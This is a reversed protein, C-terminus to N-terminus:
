EQPTVTRLARRMKRRDGEALLALLGLSALGVALLPGGASTGAAAAPVIPRAASAPAAAPPSPSAAAPQASLPPAAELGPTGPIFQTSGALNTSNLGFLNYANAPIASSTANVGGFGASFFGGGDISAIAIHGVTIPVASYCTIAAVQKPESPGFGNELGGILTQQAGQTPNNVAAILSDRTQNPVVLIQLASVSEVGQDLSVEPLVVQIGVTGLVSNVATQLASVSQNTPTAVGKILLQGISFSASPKASGGSPYSVEWHLNNFTVLGKVLTLSGIDSTSAAVREGNVVGSWAKAAMGSVGFVGQDLPAYSTDAEGYPTDTAKVFETSGFSPPPNKSNAAPTAPSQTIGQAAGSAGTETELPEPIQEPTLPANNGCTQGSTLTLGISGLDMGQSQARAFTNTHGAIAEGLVVGVALSGDHPLVSLTQAYSSGQGPDVSAGASGGVALLLTGALVAATAAAVAM